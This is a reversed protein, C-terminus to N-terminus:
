TRSASTPAGNVLSHIQTMTRQHKIRQWPQILSGRPSDVKSKVSSTTWWDQSRRLIQRIIRPLLGCRIQRRIRWSGRTSINGNVKHKLSTSRILSSCRIRICIIKILSCRWTQCTIKARIICLITRMMRTSRKIDWNTIQAMVRERSGISSKRPYTTPSFRAKSCELVFLRTIPQFRAECSILETWKRTAWSRSRRIM